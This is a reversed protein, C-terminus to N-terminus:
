KVRRDKWLIGNFCAIASFSYLSMAVSNLCSIPWFIVFYIPFGESRLVLSWSLLFISNLILYFFLESIKEAVLTQFIVALFPSLTLLSMAIFTFTMLINSRIAPYITKSIGYFGESFSRYMRCSVINGIPLFKTRFGHSRSLKALALDECIEKKVGEMGNITKFATASIFMYQGIAFTSWSHTLQNLLPFPILMRVIFMLPVTIVEGWSGLIQHPFGSFFHVKFYRVYELARLISEPEHITDADTLLFYVKEEEMEDGKGDVDKDMYNVPKSSTLRKEVEIMDCYTNGLFLTPSTKENGQGQHSPHQIIGENSIPHCINYSRLKQVQLHNANMSASTPTPLFCTVAIQYLQHLAYSKGLWDDPIPNSGRFVYVQNPYLSAFSSVIDFTGDSSDDDMVLIEVSFNLDCFSSSTKQKILSELCQLINGAENRAPLLVFVRTRELPNPTSCFTNLPNVYNQRDSSVKYSVESLKPVLEKFSPFYSSANLSFQDQKRLKMSNTQNNNKELNLKKRYLKM